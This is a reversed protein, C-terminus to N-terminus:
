KYTFELEETQGDTVTVTQRRNDKEIELGDDEHWVEIEYTGAPLKPLEFSGDAATVVFFPHEMVGIRSGMWGHIDCKVQVFERKNFQKVDVQDKKPQSMNFEENKVAFAHVNHGFPDGNTIELDQGVQVGVVHPVFMCGTQLLKVPETPTEFKYGSLGKRVWVFANQVGGEESVILTEDRVEGDEGHLASCEAKGSMDIKRRKPAKGDFSVTGKITATGLSADWAKADASTVEGGGDGDTVEGGGDPTDTGGSGDTTADSGCGVMFISALLVLSGFQLVKKM